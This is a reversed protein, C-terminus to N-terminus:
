IYWDARTQPLGRWGKESKVLLTQYLHTTGVEFEHLGVALYLRWIRYTLEGAIRKVEDSREEYRGIWHRAQATELDDGPMAFHAFSYIMRSDLWLAFFDSSRDYHYNTAQRDREKSHLLGRVKAATDSPHPQSMKPLSLLRKGYRLQEVKGWNGEVFHEM